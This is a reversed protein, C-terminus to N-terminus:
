VAVKSRVAMKRTGFVCLLGWARLIQQRRLKGPYSQELEQIMTPELYDDPEVIGGHATLQPLEVYMNSWPRMEKDIVIVMVPM